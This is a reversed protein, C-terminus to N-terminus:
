SPPNYEISQNSTFQWLTSNYRELNSIYSQYVENATLSRNWIRVEDISGNWFRNNDQWGQGIVVPANTDISLANAFVSSTELTGNVYISVNKNQYTVVLYYWKGDVLVSTGTTYRWAVGDGYLFQVNKTTLASPQNGVYFSYGFSGTDTKAILGDEHNKANLKPYVWMGITFNINELMNADGLSIYDNVGDFSLASLYKGSSNWLAGGILVGNNSYSSVDVVYTSNEGLSSINDFNYMLLLSENYFTYNTSNWNWIFQQLNAEEISVNIMQNNTASRGSPPTPSTFYLIPAKTNVTFGIQATDNILGITDNCWFVVGYSGDAISSNTFNFNITTLKTMSYNTAWSDLSFKCADGESNLTLNFLIYNVGYTQNLPSVMTIRLPLTINLERLETSNEIGLSNKAFAQYTNNQGLTLNPSTAFLWLTSNIKALNSLYSQKIESDTLTRNWLKAEDLAGQLYRNNSDPYGRGLFLSTGEDIIDGTMATCASVNAGDYFIRVGTTSSKTFAVHHWQNTTISGVALGKCSTWSGSILEMTVYNFDNTDYNNHWYFGSVGSGTSSSAWEDKAGMVGPNIWMELTFNNKLPYIPTSVYDETGDLQLGGFYKGTANMYANGLMTGNRSQWSLDIVSTANDGFLSNNNFNYIVLLSKDYFTYNTSNWNWIFQQLNAEEISVNIMQNNTASRGSPPTPSTFYILPATEGSVNVSVNTLLIPSWFNYGDSIFSFNLYLISTPSSITFTQRTGNTMNQSLTCGTAHCVSLSINTGNQNNNLTTIDIANYGLTISQNLTLNGSSYFRPFQENYIQSIETASLSRNFIMFEDIYGGFSGAIGIGLDTNSTINSHYNNTSVDQNGQFYLTMGTDNSRIAWHQWLGATASSSAVIMDIGNDFWRLKSGYFNFDKYPTGPKGYISDSNDITGILKVWVLMTFNYGTTVGSYSSPQRTYLMEDYAKEDFLVVSSLGLNEALNKLLLDPLNNIGDYSVNRMYAINDIYKKVSDFSQGYLQFVSEARKDYTDFEFLQPAALFRVMLNSKYDDIEDCIDSLSRV